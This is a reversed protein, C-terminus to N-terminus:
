QMFCKATRLINLMFKCYPSLLEVELYITLFVLFLIQAHINVAANNWYGFLFLWINMLQHISLYHIDMYYTVTSYFHIFYQCMSYCPNIRHDNQTFFGIVFSRM